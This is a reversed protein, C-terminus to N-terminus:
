DEKPQIKGGRKAFALRSKPDLANFEDFTMVDKPKDEESASPSAPVFLKAVDSPQNAKVLKQYAALLNAHKQEADDLSKTQLALAEETMEDTGSKEAIWASVSAATTEYEAQAANVADLPGKLDLM